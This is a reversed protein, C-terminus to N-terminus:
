GEVRLQGGGGEGVVDGDRFRVRRVIALINYDAARRHRNVPRVTEIGNPQGVVRHECM